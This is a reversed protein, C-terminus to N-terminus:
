AEEIRYIEIFDEESNEEPNDRYRIYIFYTKKGFSRIKTTTQLKGDQRLNEIQQVQRSDNFKFYFKAEPTDEFRLEIYNGDFNTGAVNKDSDARLSLDSSYKDDSQIYQHLAFGAGTALFFASALILFDRREM